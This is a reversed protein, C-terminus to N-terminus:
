KPLDVSSTTGQDSRCRHAIRNERRRAPLGVGRWVQFVSRLKDEPGGGNANQRQRTPDSAEPMTMGTVIHYERCRRWGTHKLLM